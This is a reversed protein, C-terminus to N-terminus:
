LLPWLVQGLPGKVSAPPTGPVNDPSLLPTNTKRDLSFHM